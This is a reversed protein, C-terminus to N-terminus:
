ILNDIDNQYDILNFCHMQKISGSGGTILRKYPHDPIYPWKPNHEKKNPNSVDDFNIIKYKSKAPFQM